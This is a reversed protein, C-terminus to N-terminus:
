RAREKRSLLADLEDYRSAPIESFKKVGGAYRLFSAVDSNTEKVRRELELAQEESVSEGQLRADNGEPRLRSKLGFMKIMLHRWATTTAGADAATADKMANTAGSRVSYERTEEHGDEHILTVIAVTRSEEQRQGFLMTFGHRFLHPELMKSIEEESCYSYAVDGKTTRAAKDAYLEPMSKRLQFFAKAFASKAQEKMEDRRLAVLREVVEVNDKNIGGRVAADLISLSSPAAVPAQVPLDPERHLELERSM